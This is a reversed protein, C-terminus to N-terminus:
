HYKGVIRAMEEFHEEMGQVLKFQTRCRDINRNERQITLNDGQLHDALFRMGCELTMLMASHPLFEIESPTPTGRVAEMYDQTYRDFVELGFQVKSLDHDDESAPNAFSRISDGFDYPSLGPMVTDLDIVCVGAGTEDDITVNNLQKRPFSDWYGELSVRPLKEATNDM